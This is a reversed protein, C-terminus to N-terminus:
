SWQLEMQEFVPEGIASLWGTAQDQEALVLRKEIRQDASSFMERLLRPCNCQRSRHLLIIHKPLGRGGRQSQDLIERVAALAEENSLHGRGGMIRRKLFEPRDSEIQMQRDYNSEIALVDVGQFHRILRASARGLDTAFGIRTGYGAVLFGHSGLEDHALRIPSLAFGDVPSFKAGNFTQILRAFEASGGGLRLLEDARQEHCFLAIGQRVITATWNPNFHDRDLHTLCIAAVNEVGIGLARMRGAATRPGIGCDILLTGGAGRVVSCNGSSGSALISLSLSM